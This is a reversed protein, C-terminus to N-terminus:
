SQQRVIGAIYAQVALVVQKDTQWVESAQCFLYFNPHFDVGNAMFCEDLVILDIVQTVCDVGVGTLVRNCRFRAVSNTVFARGSVAAVVTPRVHESESAITVALEADTVSINM